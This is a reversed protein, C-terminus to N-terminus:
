DFLNQKQTDQVKMCSTLEKLTFKYVYEHARGHEKLMKKAKSLKIGDQLTQEKKIAHSSEAHKIVEIAGSVEMSEQWTLEKQVEPDKRHQLFHCVSDFVKDPAEEDDIFILRVADTFTARDIVEVVKGKSTKFLDVIDLLSSCLTELMVRVRSWQMEVDDDEKAANECAIEDKGRRRIECENCLDFDCKECCVFKEDKIEKGCDDCDYAEACCSRAQATDLPHAQPCITASTTDRNQLTRRFDNRTVSASPSKDSFLRFLAFVLIDQYEQQVKSTTQSMILGTIFNRMTGFDLKGLHEDDLRNFTEEVKGKIKFAIQDVAAECWRKLLWRSLLNQYRLLFPVYEIRNNIEETHCLFPRLGTWPFETGTELVTRMVSAWQERTVTGRWDRVERLSDLSARSPSSRKDMAQFKELLAARHLFIHMMVQDLVREQQDGEAALHGLRYRVASIALQLEGSGEEEWESVVRQRLQSAQAEDIREPKYDTPAYRLIVLNLDKSKAMLAEKMEAGTRKGNVELLRDVRTLPGWGDMVFAFGSVPCMVEQASPLKALDAVKLHEHVINPRRVRFRLKDSGIFEQKLKDYGSSGNIDLICDGVRVAKEPHEVNHKQILGEIIETIVPTQLSTSEANLMVGLQDGETKVIDFQIQTFQGGSSELAEMDFETAKEVDEVWEQKIYEENWGEGSTLKLDADIMVINANNTQDYNSASFVTKVLGGHTEQFGADICEHSRVIYDLGNKQIFSSTMSAGFHYGVGRDSEGSKARPDSWLLGIFLEDEQSKAPHPVPGRVLAKIRDLTPVFSPLGAHVVFVKNDVVHCLPLQNFAMHVLINLEKHDDPYACQMHTQFGYFRTCIESEHNGRNLFVYKPCLLRLVFISFLVEPGWIGRDVFDGNFLYMNKSSPHGYRTYVHWFDSCHGHLDGVIILREEPQPVRGLSACETQLHARMQEVLRRAINASPLERQQLQRWLETLEDEDLTDYMTVGTKAKHYIDRLGLEFDSLDRDLDGEGLVTMDDDDLDSRLNLRKETQIELARFAESFMKARKGEEMETSISMM